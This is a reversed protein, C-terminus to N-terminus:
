SRTKLLFHKILALLCNSMTTLASAIGADFASPGREARLDFADQAVVGQGGAGSVSSANDISKSFQYTGGFSIGRGLRRNLRVAGSHLISNGESAEWNFPQVDAIRLGTATRNPAEIIDLRTGKARITSTSCSDRNEWIRQFDSELDSYGRYNPDIAYNNTVAAPAFGLFGNQLTLPLVASYINTQTQSFPPQNALLAAITAYASGNYNVGYGARLVTQNTLRWALGIRPSFNNRDPKVLSRPFLGHYPGIQGPLVPSVALFGPAADLNVIQNNREVYPSVYDYRLGYQVTLNGRLRWDDQVFGDWSSSRFNYTRPSCQM